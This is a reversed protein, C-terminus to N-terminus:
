IFDLNLSTVKNLGMYGRNNDKKFMYPDLGIAKLFEAGRGTLCRPCRQYIEDKIDFVYIIYRLTHEIKAMNDERTIKPNNTNEFISKYRAVFETAIEKNFLYRIDCGCGM